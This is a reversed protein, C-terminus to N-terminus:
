QARRLLKHVQFSTHLLVLRAYCNRSVDHHAAEIAETLEIVNLHNIFPAFKSAFKAEEETLRTM